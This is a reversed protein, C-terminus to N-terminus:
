SFSLKRLADSLDDDGGEDAFSLRHPPQVRAATFWPTYGGAAPSPRPPSKASSIRRMVEDFDNDCDDVDCTATTVVPTRLPPRLPPRNQNSSASKASSASRPTRGNVTALVFTGRCLGCVKRTTDLSKSHRGIRYGCKSCEYIYKTVIDYNHCVNVMPIRPHALHAKGARHLDLCSIIQAATLSAAARVLQMCLLCRKGLRGCADMVTM